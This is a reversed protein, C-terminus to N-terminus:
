RLNITKKIKRKTTGTRIKTIEVIIVVKRARETEETTANVTKKRVKLKRRVKNRVKVIRRVKKREKVIRRRVKTRAKVM